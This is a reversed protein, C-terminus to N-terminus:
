PEVTEIDIGYHVEPTEEAVGLAFVDDDGPDDNELRYSCEGALYKAWAKVAAPEGELEVILRQKM